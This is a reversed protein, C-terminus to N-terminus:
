LLNWMMQIPYCKVLPWVRRGDMVQQLLLRGEKELPKLPLQAADVAFVEQMVWMVGRAFRSIGLSKVAGEVSQEGKFTVPRGQVKKLIFFCDMLQRMDVHGYLTQEYLSLLVVVVHMSSTPLVFGREERYLQERNQRFWRQTVENKWLSKTHVVQTLLSAPTDEWADIWVQHHNQRIDQRGTQQVFKVAKQHGCDVYVDIGSPQRLDKLEAGYYHAVGQGLLLTNYIKRETLKQQLVAARKDTLVNASRIDEAGAMWDLSVEQPARLGFEFLKEVGRYCIGVVHQKLAKQYLVLWEEPEPGRSLCNQQGIAVQMLEYFLKDM